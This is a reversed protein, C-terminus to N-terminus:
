SADNGFAGVVAAQEDLSMPVAPIGELSFLQEDASAQGITAALAIAAASVFLKTQM